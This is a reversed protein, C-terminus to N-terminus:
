MDDECFYPQILVSGDDYFTKKSYVPYIDGYKDRNYKKEISFSMPLKFRKPREDYYNCKFYKTTSPSFCTQKSIRLDFTENKNNNKKLSNKNNEDFNYRYKMKAYPHTVGISNYYKINNIRKKDTNYKYNYYTNNGYTNKQYKRYEEEGSNEENDDDNDNEEDSNINTYRIYNFRSPRIDNYNTNQTYNIEKKRLYINYNKFSNVMDIVICLRESPLIESSIGIYKMEPNLIKDRHTKIMFINALAEIANDVGIIFFNAPSIPILNYKKLREHLNNRIKENESFHLNCSGDDVTIISYILDKSTLELNQDIEVPPVKMSFNKFFLSLKSIDEDTDDESILHRSFDKPSTRAENIYYLISKNLEGSNIQMLLKKKKYFDEESQEM